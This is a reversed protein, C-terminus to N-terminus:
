YGGLPDAPGFGDTRARWESMPQMDLAELAWSLACLGPLQRMDATGDTGARAAEDPIGSTRGLFLTKADQVRGQLLSLYYPLLGEGGGQRSLPADLRLAPKRERRRRDNEAELLRFRPDTEAAIIRPAAYRRLFSEAAEMLRAPSESREEALLFVHRDEGATTPRFRAEGLALVCGPLPHWPWALACVTRRYQRGTHRDLLYPEGTVADTLRQLM